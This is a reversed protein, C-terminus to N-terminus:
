VLYVQGIQVSRVVHIDGGGTRKALTLLMEKAQEADDAAFYDKHALPNEGELYDIAWLNNMHINKLWEQPNEENM